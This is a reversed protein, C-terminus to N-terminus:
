LLQEELMGELISLKFTNGGKKYPYGSDSSDGSM